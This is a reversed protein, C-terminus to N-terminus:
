VQIHRVIGMSEEETSLTVLRTDTDDKVMNLLQTLGGDPVTCVTEINRKKIESFVDSSWDYPTTM